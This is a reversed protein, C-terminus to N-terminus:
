KGNCEVPLFLISIFQPLVTLKNGTGLPGLVSVLGKVHKEEEGREKLEGKRHGDDLEKM